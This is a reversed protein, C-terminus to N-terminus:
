GDETLAIVAHLLAGQALHWRVELVEGAHVWRETHGRALGALRPVIERARLGLLMRYHDLWANHEALALRSWDVKAAEFSAAAVPHALPAAPPTFRPMRAMERRRGARVADALEGGFECFFPFPEPASWEQGMFLLPVTPALLVVAAAARVAAPPALAGIREAM